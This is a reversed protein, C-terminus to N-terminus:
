YLSFRGVDVYRGVVGRGDYYIVDTIYATKNRTEGGSMKTKMSVM